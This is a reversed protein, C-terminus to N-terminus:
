VTASFATASFKVAAEDDGSPRVCSFDDAREERSSNRADWSKSERERRTIIRRM